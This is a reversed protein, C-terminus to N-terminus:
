VTNICSNEAAIAVTQDNSVLDGIELSEQIEDDKSYEQFQHLQSVKNLLGAELTYGSFLECLGYM